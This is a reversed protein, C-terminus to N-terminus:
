DACPRVRANEAVSVPVELRGIGGQAAQVVDGAAMEIGNARCEIGVTVTVPSAQDSARILTQGVSTRGSQRSLAELVLSRPQWTLLVRLAARSTRSLGTM